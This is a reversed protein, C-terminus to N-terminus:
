VWGVLLVPSVREDYVSELPFPPVGETDARQPKDEKDHGVKLTMKGLCSGAM